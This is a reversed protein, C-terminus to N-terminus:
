RPTSLRSLTHKMLLNPAEPWNPPTLLLVKCPCGVYRYCVMLLSAQLSSGGAKRAIREHLSYFVDLLMASYTM